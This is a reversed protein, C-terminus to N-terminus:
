RATTKRKLIVCTLVLPVVIFLALILWNQVLDRSFSDGYQLALGPGIRSTDISFQHSL